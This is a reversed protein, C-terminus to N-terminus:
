LRLDINPNEASSDKIVQLIREGYGNAARRLASTQRLRICCPPLSTLVDHLADLNEDHYRWPGLKKCIYRHSAEKSTFRRGDLLFYLM